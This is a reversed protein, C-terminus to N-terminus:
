KLTRKLTKQDVSHTPKVRKKKQYEVIMQMTQQMNEVYEKMLDMLSPSTELDLTVKVHGKKEKVM